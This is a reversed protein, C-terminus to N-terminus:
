DWGMWSRFKLFAFSALTSVIITLWTDHRGNALVAKHLERLEKHNEARDAKMEQRIERLTAEIAIAANANALAFAEAHGLARAADPDTDGLSAGKSTV